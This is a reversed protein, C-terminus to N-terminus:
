RQSVECYFEPTISWGTSWQNPDDSVLRYSGGIVKLTCAVGPCDKLTFTAVGNDLTILQYNPTQKAEESNELYLKINLYQYAKTLAAVNTLYVHVKLDGTYYENPTIVFLDGSPVEGCIEVYTVAVYVQTCYVRSEGKLSVGIQLDDIEDDTWAQGTYPNIKWRFSKTVFTKGTQSEESGYYIRGYTMIVARAWATYDSKGHRDGSFRFYVTVGSIKGSDDNNEIDNNEDIQYLDTRYDG